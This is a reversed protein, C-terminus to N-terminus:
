TQIGTCSSDKHEQFRENAHIIPITFRLPARVPYCYLLIFNSLLSIAVHPILARVIRLAETQLMVDKTNASWRNKQTLSLTLHFHATAERPRYPRTFEVSAISPISLLTGNIGPVARCSLSHRMALPRSVRRPRPPARPRDSYFHMEIRAAGISM